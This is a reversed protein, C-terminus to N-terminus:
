NPIIDVEFYQFRNGWWHSEPLNLTCWIRKGAPSQGPGWHPLKRGRASKLPGVELPFSFTLPPLSPSLLFPSPIGRVSIESDAGVAGRRYLVGGDIETYTGAVSVYEFLM